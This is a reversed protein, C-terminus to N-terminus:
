AKQMRRRAIFGAGALLVAGAAYTSPEPVDSYTYTVTVRAGQFM